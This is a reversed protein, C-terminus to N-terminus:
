LSRFVFYDCMDNSAVAKKLLDSRQVRWKVKYFLFKDNRQQVAAPLTVKEYFELDKELYVFDNAHLNNIIETSHELLSNEAM